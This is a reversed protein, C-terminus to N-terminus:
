KLTHRQSHVPSCEVIAGRGYALVALGIAISHSPSRESAYLLLMTLWVWEQLIHTATTAHLQILASCKNSHGSGSLSVFDNSNAEVSCSPLRGPVAM